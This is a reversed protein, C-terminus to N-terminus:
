GGTLAMEIAEDLKGQKCLNTVAKSAKAGTMEVVTDICIQVEEPPSQDQAQVPGSMTLLACCCILGLIKKM